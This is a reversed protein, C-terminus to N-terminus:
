IIDCIYPHDLITSEPDSSDQLFVISDKQLPSSLWPTASLQLYSSALTLALFYRKRRTLSHADHLLTNLTITSLSMISQTQSDPYFIFRHEDEDLFGFCDPCKASLTSCLDKIKEMQDHSSNPTNLNGNDTWRVQRSGKLSGTMPQPVNISVGATGTRTGGSIMKIRTGQWGGQHLTTGLNFVVDFEVKDSTRHKLQLNAVHSGCSCQWAKSLAEHLRKAHRWFENIKRNMSSPPKVTARSRRAASIQDSSELLNRMRDNAEQLQTFLRERSSKKLSFKIRKAQFEINSMSM